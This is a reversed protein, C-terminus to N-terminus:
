MSDFELKCDHSLQRPTARPVTQSIRLTEHIFARFKPCNVVNELLIKRMLIDNKADTYEICYQLLENVIDQQLQPYKVCYSLATELNHPLTDINGLIFQWIDAKIMDVRIQKYKGFKNTQISTWIQDFFTKNEERNIDCKSIALDVYKSSFQYINNVTNAFEHSISSFRSLVPFLNVMLALNFLKVFNKLEKNIFIFQNSDIKIQYQSGFIAGFIVNFACFRLDDRSLWCGYHTDDNNDKKSLKILKPILYNEFLKDIQKEIYKRDATAIISNMLLKRREFWYNNSLGFGFPATIGANDFLTQTAIPRDVCCKHSLVTQGINIDNLCIFDGNGISYGCLPGYKPLITLNFDSKYYLITFLSGFYPIGLMKPPSSCGAFLKRKNYYRSRNYLHFGIFTCLCALTTSGFFLRKSKITEHVWRKLRM